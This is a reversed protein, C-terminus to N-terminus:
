IKVKIECIGDGCCKCSVLGDPSAGIFPFDTSIHFGCEMVELESHHQSNKNQYKDRAFREHECGWQMAASKFKSLEPYCISMILSNSPLCPDTHCAAKLKTATIRGSRMRYWLRSHHQSRTQQEVFKAQSETVEVTVESAKKLLSQYDLKLYDPNYLNALHSPFDSALSKPVFNDSYPPILSLIGPKSSCTALTGLFKDFNTTYENPRKKKPAPAPSPSPSPSPSVSKRESRSQRWSSSKGQFNMDKIKAYPVDKIAAPIVWYAKKQTVTM